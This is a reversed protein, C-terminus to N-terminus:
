SISVTTLLVNSRHKLCFVDAIHKAVSVELSPQKVKMDKSMDKAIFLYRNGMDVDHKADGLGPSRPNSSSRERQMTTALIDIDRKAQTKDQFDRVGSDTRLTIIAMLDGEEVDPFLDMNLVVEEKSFGEDHVWLLCRREIPVKIPLSRHNISSTDSSTVPRSNLMIDNSGTSVQRLHSFRQAGRRPTSPPAPSM